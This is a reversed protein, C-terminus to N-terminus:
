DNLTLLIRLGDSMECVQKRLTSINKKKPMQGDHRAPKPLRSFLLQVSPNKNKNKYALSGENRRTYSPPVERQLM